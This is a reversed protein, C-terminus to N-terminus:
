TVPCSPDPEEKNGRFYFGLLAAPHTDVGGHVTLLIGPFFFPAPKVSFVSIVAGAL